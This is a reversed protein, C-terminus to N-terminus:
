LTYWAVFRIKLPLTVGSLGPLYGELQDLVGGLLLVETKDPNLKNARTWDMISELCHEVVQVADVLLHPLASVSSHAMWM